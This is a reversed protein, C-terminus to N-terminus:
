LLSAKSPGRLHAPPRWRAHPLASLGLMFSGSHQLQLLTWAMGYQLNNNEHTPMLALTHTHTHANRRRKGGEEAQNM